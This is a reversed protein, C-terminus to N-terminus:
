PTEQCVISGFGGRKCLLTPTWWISECRLKYHESMRLTDGDRIAESPKNELFFSQDKELIWDTIGEKFQFWAPTDSVWSNKFKSVFGKELYYSNFLSSKLYSRIDKTYDFASTDVTKTTKRKAQVM